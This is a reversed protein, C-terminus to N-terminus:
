FNKQVPIAIRWAQMQDETAYDWMKDLDDMEKYAKHRSIPKFKWHYVIDDIVISTEMRRYEYGISSYFKDPYSYKPMKGGNRM